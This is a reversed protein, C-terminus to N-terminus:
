FKVDLGLFPGSTEVDASWDEDEGLEIAFSRYGLEASFRALFSLETEWGVAAKFDTLSNDDISITNLSGFLFIGSGPISFRGQLYGMPIVGDVSESISEETGSLDVVEISADFQRLTIGIDIFAIEYYLTLDAFELSLDSAVDVGVSITEGDIELTEELTGEGSVSLDTLELRFNPIIPVAHELAAYIYTNQEEEALGLESLDTTSDGIDGEWESQWVGAGVYFSFLPTADVAYTSQAAVLLGLSTLIKKM